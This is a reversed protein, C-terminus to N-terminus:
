EGNRSCVVSTLFVVLTCKPFAIWHVLSTDLARQVELTGKMAGPLRSYSLSPRQEVANVLRILHKGM